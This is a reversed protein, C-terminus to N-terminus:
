NQCVVLLNSWWANKRQLVRLRRGVNKHKWDCKGPVQNQPKLRPSFCSLFINSFNKKMLKVLPLLNMATLNLCRQNTRFKSVKRFKSIGYLVANNSNLPLSQSEGWNLILNIFLLISFNLNKWYKWCKNLALRPLNLYLWNGILSKRM